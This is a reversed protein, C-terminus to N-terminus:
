TLLRRLSKGQISHPIEAQAFDLFTPAFDLNQTLAEIPTENKIAKPYQVLLPMALSEEYMFRKNFFSKEVLYFGQDTTYVISTNETLGQENLYDLIEGVGGDVVAVTSMYKRFYRQGKWEALEKGSLNADHFADNKQRYVDNWQARQEETM